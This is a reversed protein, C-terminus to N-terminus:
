RARLAMRSPKEAEAPPFYGLYALADGSREYLKQTPKESLAKWDNSKTYATYRIRSDIDSMALAMQEASGGYGDCPNLISHFVIKNRYSPIKSVIRNVIERPSIEKMCKFSRPCHQYWCPACSLGSVIAEHTPYHNLRAVPPISGFAVVSPIKLAGALHMPGSDPGFFVDCQQILAAKERTSCKSCDIVGEATALKKNRNNFDFLVIRVGSVRENLMRVIEHHKDFPLSRQADHSATHICVVPQLGAGIIKRAWFVEEPSVEYFPLSDHLKNFGLKKAFLDIRNIPPLDAREYPLCVSSIDVVKDYKARIVYRADVIEDIFLANKVLEYYSDDFTRHRDIAFTLHADPYRHKLERLAPTAMLVDGLGGVSRIVCIRQASHEKLVKRVTASRKPVATIVRKGRCVSEQKQAIVRQKRKSRM